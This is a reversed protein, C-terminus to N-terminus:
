VSSASSLRRLNRGCTQKGENHLELMTAISCTYIAICDWGEFDACEGKFGKCQWIRVCNRNFSLSSYWGDWSWLPEVELVVVVAVIACAPPSSAWFAWLFFPALGLCLVYCGRAHLHLM